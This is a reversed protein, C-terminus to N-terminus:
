RKRADCQSANNHLCAPPEELVSVAHGFAHRELVLRLYDSLARDDRAALRMLAQELRESVRLPPLQSTCKMDPNTMASCALSVGQACLLFFAAIPQPRFSGAWSSSLRVPLPSV